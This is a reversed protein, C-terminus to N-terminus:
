QILEPTKDNSGDTVFLFRLKEKPYDLALSNRIKEEIYAEENYAAVLFTVEPLQSDDTMPAYVTKKSFLRKIKLLIYLLIGYGLYSYFVTFALTWFLIQLISNYTM